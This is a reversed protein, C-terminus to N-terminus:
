MMDILPMSLDSYKGVFRCYYNTLELFAQINKVKEPTLWELIAQIKDPDMRIGERLIIAGLFMVQEKAFECKSIKLLLGHKKLHRLM